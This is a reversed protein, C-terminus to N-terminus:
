RVEKCDTMEVEEGLLDSWSWKYPPDVHPGVTVRLTVEYVKDPAEARKTACPQCVALWGGEVERVTDAPMETCDDCMKEVPGDLAVWGQMKSEFM